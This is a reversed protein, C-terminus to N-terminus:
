KVGGKERLHWFIAVAFAAVAGLWGWFGWVAVAAWFCVSVLIGSKM